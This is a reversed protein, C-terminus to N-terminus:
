GEQLRKAALSSDTLRGDSAQIAKKYFRLAQPPNAPGGIGQELVRAYNQMAEPLGADAAEKYLNRIISPDRDVIGKEIAVGFNNLGQPDHANAAKELLAAAETPESDITLIGLNALAPGFDQDAAKKYLAKADHGKVLGKQALYALNFTGASDNSDAALKFYKAADLYRGQDYLSAGYEVQSRVDGGDAAAAIGAAPGEGNVRALHRKGDPNGAEAASNYLTTAQDLDKEVIRGLEFCRGLNVMAAPNGLEVASQFCKVATRYGGSVKGAEILGGLNNLADANGQDAAMRYYKAAEAIDEATFQLHMAYKVQGFQCGADASAKFLEAAKVPDSSECALGLFFQANPDGGDALEQLSEDVPSGGKEKIYDAFVASDVGPFGMEPGFNELFTIVDAITPRADPDPNLCSRIFEDTKPPLKQLNLPKRTVAKVWSDMNRRDAPGYPLQRCLLYYAVMGFSFIDASFAEPMNKYHEPPQFIISEKAQQHEEHFEKFLRALYYDTLVAECTDTVLINGLCLSFHGANSDHLYKLGQAVGYLLLLPTTPTWNKIGKPPFGRSIVQRLGGNAIYPCSITVTGEQRDFSKIPLLNPHSLASLNRMVRDVKAPKVDEYYVFRVTLNDKSAPDVYQFRMDSENIAALEPSDPSLM